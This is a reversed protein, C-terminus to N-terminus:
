GSWLCSNVLKIVVSNKTIGKLTTRHRAIVHSKKLVEWSCFLNIRVYKKGSRLQGILPARQLSKVLSQILGPLEGSLGLTLRSACHCQLFLELNVLVFWTM